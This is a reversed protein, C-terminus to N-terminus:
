TSPLKGHQCDRSLHVFAEAAAVGAERGRWAAIIEHHEQWIRAGHQSVHTLLAAKKMELVPTVDVYANPMFGRSQEGTNVEFFYLNPPDRLAMCARIVLFSAVQHDMHTDVPWHTFVVDPREASLLKTMADVQIHTVETAGDIQGFFVPKAGMINCAAECESTRIRACEELTKDRIGREGRTLYVITVSHGAQVYRVLTGACGSEPDDPHAGVSVVRLPRAPANAITAGPLPAANAALIGPALSISQRLFGRRTLDDINM